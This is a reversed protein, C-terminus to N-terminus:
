YAHAAKYLSLLTVGFEALVLRSKTDIFPMILIIDGQQSRNRKLVGVDVWGGQHQILSQHMIPIGAAVVSGTPFTLGNCFLAFLFNIYKM